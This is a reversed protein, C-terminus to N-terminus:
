LEFLTVEKVEKPKMNHLTENGIRIRILRLTAHGVAATMKRVQRFKGETLTVSIWSTPGHHEGRIKFPDLHLKPPHELKSALCPKTVYKIGEFGIEVGAKLQDLALESIEGDVQALYEKEVSNGRIYESVKGDTTLFILGESKADLRGIAMTEEPFNHLEGLLKNKNKKTNAIFQSLYGAPKYLIFNRTEM